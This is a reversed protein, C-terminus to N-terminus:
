LLDRHSHLKKALGREYESSEKKLQRALIVSRQERWLHRFYESVSAYKGRKVERKIDRLMDEPISLNVISRM